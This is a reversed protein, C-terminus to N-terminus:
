KTVRTLDIGKKLKTNMPYACVYEPVSNHKFEVVKNFVDPFESELKHRNVRGISSGMCIQLRINRSPVHVNRLKSKNMNNLLEDRIQKYRSELRRLEVEVTLLEDILEINDEVFQEENINKM